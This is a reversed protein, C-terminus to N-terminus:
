WTLTSRPPRNMPVVAASVASVTVAVGAGGTGSVRSVLPGAAQSSSAVADNTNLEVSAPDVNAQAVSPTEAGHVEGYASLPSLGVLWTTVMAADLAPWVSGVGARLTNVTGTSSPESFSLAPAHFRM